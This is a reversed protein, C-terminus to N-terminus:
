SVEVDDSDTLHDAREDTPGGEVPDSREANSNNDLVIEGSRLGQLLEKVVSRFNHKAKLM